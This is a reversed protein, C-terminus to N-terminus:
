NDKPKFEDHSATVMERLLKDGRSIFPTLNRLLDNAIMVNRRDQATLEPNQHLGKLGLTMDDIQEVASNM